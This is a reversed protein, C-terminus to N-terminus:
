LLMRMPFAREGSPEAVERLERAFEEQDEDEPVALRIVLCQVRIGSETEGEWVRARVHDGSVEIMESTNEITIKM